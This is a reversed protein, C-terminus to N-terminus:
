RLVNRFYRDNVQDLAVRLADSSKVIDYPGRSLPDLPPPTAAQILLLGFSAVSLSCAVLPRSTPASPTSTGSLPSSPPPKSSSDASSQSCRPPRPHHTTPPLSIPHQPAPFPLLSSPFSVFRKGLESQSGLASFYEKREKELKKIVKQILYHLEPNHVKGEYGNQTDSIPLSTDRKNCNSLTKCGLVSRQTLSRLTSM